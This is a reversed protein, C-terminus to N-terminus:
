TLNSNIQVLRCHYAQLFTCQIRWFFCAAKGAGTKLDVVWVGPEPGSLEFAYVADIKTIMDENLISKIHSFLEKVGKTTGASSQNKRSKKMQQSQGM